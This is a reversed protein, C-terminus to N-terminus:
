ALLGAVAISLATAYGTEREQPTMAPDQSTRLHDSVTCVALAQRRAQLACAYLGAAEMEVALAGIRVLGDTIDPRDLYFYDSSYLAGIHVRGATNKASPHRTAAMAAALMEPDAFLSCSLDPVLMSAIRSDTHAAAGIVVDRIAVQPSIGGATGVRCIRRVGYDAFLEHAYITLSPIGMGSAVVSMPVGDLTGTWAGIGRVESVCHADTLLERAIREARRPDGPMLVLPAIEGYEASIHPTSM